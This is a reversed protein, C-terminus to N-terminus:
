LVVAMMLDLNLLESDACQDCKQPFKSLLVNGYMLLLLRCTKM